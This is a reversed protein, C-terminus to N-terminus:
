REPVEILVKCYNTKVGLTGCASGMDDGKKKDGSKCKALICM